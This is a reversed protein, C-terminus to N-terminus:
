KKECLCNNQSDILPGVSINGEVKILIFIWLDDHNCLLGNLSRKRKSKKKGGGGKKAPKKSFIKKPAEGKRNREEEEKKKKPQNRVSFRILLEGM